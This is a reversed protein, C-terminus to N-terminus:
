IKLVSSLQRACHAIIMAFVLSTSVYFIHNLRASVYFTKSETAMSCLGKPTAIVSIVDM